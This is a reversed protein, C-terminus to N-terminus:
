IIKDQSPYNYADRLGTDYDVHSTFLYYMLLAPYQSGNARGINNQVLDRQKNRVATPSGTGGFYNSNIKTLRGGGETLFIRPNQKDSSPWGGWRGKLKGGITDMATNAQLRNAEIDLHHHQSWGFWNGAQFGRADLANLLDDTFPGSATSDPDNDPPSFPDNQKYDVLAPALLVPYFNAYGNRAKVAKATVMMDAVANVMGTQPRMQGNPENVIEICQAIGQRSPNGPNYRVILRELFSAYPSSPDVQSPRTFSTNGGNAWGPCTWVTLIVILGAANAAQVQNDLQAWASDKWGPGGPGPATPQLQAWDAWFRVWTTNTETFYDLQRQLDYYSPAEFITAHSHLAVGKRLDGM